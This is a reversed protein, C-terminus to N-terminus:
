AVIIPLESEFLTGFTLGPLIHGQDPADQVVSYGWDAARLRQLSTGHHSPNTFGCDGLQFFLQDFQQIRKYQLADGRAHTLFYAAFSDAMLETRRSAEPGTLPSQFLNKQFQVHHGYEHALIAQATVDSYGLARFAELVGDGMVIMKSIVFGPIVAGPYAFANFSFFPHNGYDFKPQNMTTVVETALSTSIADPLGYVVNFLRYMRAQSTLMTGKMPVLKIGTADIDWFRGLDRFTHTIDTSFEGELGFTTGSDQPWLLADFLLPQFSNVANAFQQDAATWDARQAAAWTRVPTSPDCATPVVAASLDDEIAVKAALQAAITSSSTPRLANLKSALASTQDASPAQAAPAVEATVSAQAANATLGGALALSLLIVSGALSKKM